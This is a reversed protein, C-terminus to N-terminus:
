LGGTTAAYEIRAVKSVMFPGLTRAFVATIHDIDKHVLAGGVVPYCVSSSCFFPTMDLVHVRGRLLRAATVAPDRRLAEARPRACRTGVALRRALARRVCDQAVSSSLPTDRIVVVSKVTAPLARYLAMDGLVATDVNSAAGSTVYTANARQSLFVTRVEPHHGLWTLVDRNWRRCTVAQERSPIVVRAKSFPCGSRTISVAATGRARVVVDIAARWHGAHSDGILAATAPKGSGDVGFACPYMLGAFAQPECPAWPQLVADDPTPFVTRRLSPDICRVLPDRAAAGFCPRALVAASQATTAPEDAPAVAPTLIAIALAVGLV